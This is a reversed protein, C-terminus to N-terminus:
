WWKANHVDPVAKKIFINDRPLRRVRALLSPMDETYRTNLMMCM